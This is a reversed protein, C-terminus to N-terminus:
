FRDRWVTEPGGSRHNVLRGAVFLLDSLRNLYIMCNENVPQGESLAVVRAEARRVVSRAHQILAAPRTGGPLIFNQLPPLQADLRDIIDELNKYMEPTVRTKSNGSPDSLDAGAVFLDAQVQKLIDGIDGDIDEALVVGIASNAEDVAGYAGIRADGKSVRVGGQLDTSGGDGGKTYIKM